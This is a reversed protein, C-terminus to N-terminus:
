ASKGEREIGRLARELHDLAHHVEIVADSLARSRETERQAIQRWAMWAAHVVRLAQRLM